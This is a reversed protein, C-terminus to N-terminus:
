KDFTNNTLSNNNSISTNKEKNNIEPIYNMYIYNINNLNDFLHSINSIDTKSSNWKLFIIDDINGVNITKDNTNINSPNNNIAISPLPGLYKNSLIQNILIIEFFIFNILKSHKQNNKKKIKQILEKNKLYQIPNSNIKSIKPYDFVNRNREM